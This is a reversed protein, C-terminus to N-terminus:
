SLELEITTWEWDLNLWTGENLNVISVVEGEGFLKEYGNILETWYAVRGNDFTVLYKPLIEQTNSM